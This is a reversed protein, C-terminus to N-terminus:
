SEENVNRMKSLLSSQCIIVTGDDLRGAMMVTTVQREGM